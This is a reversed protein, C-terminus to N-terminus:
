YYILTVTHQQTYDNVDFLRAMIIIVPKLCFCSGSQNKLKIALRTADRDIVLSCKSYPVIVGSFLGEFLRQNKFGM